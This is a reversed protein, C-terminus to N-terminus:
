NPASPRITLELEIEKKKRKWLFYMQDIMYDVYKILVSLYNHLSITSLGILGLNVM